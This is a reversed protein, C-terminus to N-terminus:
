GAYKPPYSYTRSSDVVVVNDSRVVPEFRILPRTAPGALVRGDRGFRSGHCPCRFQGTAEDWTVQCGLHTCTADLAYLRGGEHEPLRVLWLGYSDKWRADVIGPPFQDLPGAVFAKRRSPFSNPFFFRLGALAAVTGGATAALAGARAVLRAAREYLQRRDVSGVLLNTIPSCCDPHGGNRCM